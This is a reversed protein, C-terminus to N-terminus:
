RANYIIRRYDDIIADIIKPHAKEPNTSIGFDMTKTKAPLGTLSKSYVLELRYIFYKGPSSKFDEFKEFLSDLSAHLKTDAFILSLNIGLEKAKTDPKKRYKFTSDAITYELQDEFYIDHFGLDYGCASKCHGSSIKIQQLYETQANVQGSLALIM